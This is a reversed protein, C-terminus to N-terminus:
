RWMGAQTVGALGVPGCSAFRPWHPKIELRVADGGTGMLTAPGRQMSAAPVLTRPGACGASVAGGCRLPVAPPVPMKQLPRNDGEPSAENQGGVDGLCPVRSLWQRQPVLRQMQLCPYLLWFWLAREAFVRGCGGAPLCFARPHPRAAPCPQHACASAPSGARAESPPWAMIQARSCWCADRGLEGLCLGLKEQGSGLREGGLTLSETGLRFLESDQPKINWRLYESVHTAGPGRSILFVSWQRKLFLRGLSCLVRLCNGPACCLLPSPRLPGPCTCLDPQRFRGPGAGQEGQGRPCGEQAQERRQSASIIVADACYSATPILRAALNLAAGPLTLAREM